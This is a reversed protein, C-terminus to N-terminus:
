SVCCDLHRLNRCLWLHLCHVSTQPIRFHIGGKAAAFGHFNAMIAPSPHLFEKAADSPGVKSVEDPLFSNGFGFFIKGEETSAAKSRAM